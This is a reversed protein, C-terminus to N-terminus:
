PLRRNSAIPHRGYASANRVILGCVLGTSGHFTIEQVNTDGESAGQHRATYRGRRTELKYGRTIIWGAGGASMSIMAKHIRHSAYHSSAGNATAV